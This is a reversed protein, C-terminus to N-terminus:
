LGSLGGTEWGVTDLCQRLLRIGRKRTRGSSSMLISFSDVVAVNCNTPCMIPSLCKAWKLTASSSEKYYIVGFNVGALCHRQHRSAMLFPIQNTIFVIGANRFPKMQPCLRFQLVVTIPSDYRSEIWDRNSDCRLDSEVMARNSELVMRNSVSEIWIKIIRNLLCM